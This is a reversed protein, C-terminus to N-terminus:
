YGHSIGCSKCQDDITTKVLSCWSTEENGYKGLFDEDIWNPKKIMDNYKIHTYFKCIKITYGYTGDKFKKFGSTATYCYHTNKPVKKKLKRPVRGYERKIFLGKENKM